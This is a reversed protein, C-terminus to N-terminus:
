PKATTRDEITQLRLSPAVGEVIWALRDALQVEARTDTVITDAILAICRGVGAAVAVVVGHTNTDSDSPRVGGRVMGRFDRGPEFSKEVVVNQTVSDGAANPDTSAARSWLRQALAADPELLALESQCQEVTVLRSTPWHRVVLKTQTVLHELRLSTPSERRQWEKAFPLRM